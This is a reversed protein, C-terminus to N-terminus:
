LIKIDNNAKKKRQLESNKPQSPIGTQQDKEFVSSDRNTM